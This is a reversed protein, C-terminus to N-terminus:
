SYYYAVILAFGVLGLVVAIDSWSWLRHPEDLDRFFLNLFDSIWRQPSAM